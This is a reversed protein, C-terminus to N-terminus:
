ELEAQDEYVFSDVGAVRSLELEDIGQAKSSYFQSEHIDVTINSSTM